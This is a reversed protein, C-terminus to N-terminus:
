PTVGQAKLELMVQASEEVTTSGDLRAVIRRDSNNRPGYLIISSSPSTQTLGPVYTLKGTKSNGLQVTTFTDLEGKTLTGTTVLDNLSAPYAGSHSSAYLQLSAHLGKANNIATVENAKGLAKMATPVALGALIVVGFFTMVYGLVLGAIAFGKGELEGGAKKIKGLALHGCIVAPLGTLCGLIFGCIGLVLSAIALGSTQPRAPAIQNM